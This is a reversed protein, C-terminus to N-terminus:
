TKNKTGTVTFVIQNQEFAISALNIERFNEMKRLNNLFIGLDSNSSTTAGIRFAVSTEDKEELALGTFVISQPIQGSLEIITEQWKDSNLYTKDILGLKTQTQKILAEDPELGEVYPLDQNIKTKLTDLDADLKFRALFAGVVIIEVLIVIFRGYTILWKLFREPLKLPAEKPHLLNLSIRLKSSQQASDAM